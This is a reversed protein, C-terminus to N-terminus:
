RLRAVLATMQDQLRRARSPDLGNMLISFAVERDGLTSCYGSLTSVGRLTGTKARCRGHAATGRMRRRLTGQVGAVPLSVRLDRAAERGNMAALLRIVSRPSARNSRTLGSGDLIEAPAGLWRGFARVVRAGRSTTGAGYAAGIRKLMMEAFYNNSSRNTARALLALRPSRATALRAREESRPLRDRVVRGEVAIGRRRLERRLAWAASLAPDPSFRAQTDGAYGGNWSLASLPGIWRSLRYGSAPVGRRRDFVTDDAVLPGQVRRVGSRAVSAALRRVDTVLGGAYRQAYTATGFTPDGGGRLVLPGELAFTSASEAEPSGPPHPRGQADAPTLARTRWVTTAIRHDPGLLDLAAATTYLKTNSALRRRVFPRHAYLSRERGLDLVEAGSYRGARRMRRELARALTSSAISSDARGSAAAAREAADQAGASAPLSALM